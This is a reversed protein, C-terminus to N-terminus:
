PVHAACAVLVQVPGSHPQSSGERTVKEFTTDKGSLDPNEALAM